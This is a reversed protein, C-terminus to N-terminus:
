NGEYPQSRFQDYRTHIREAEKRTLRTNVLTEYTWHNHESDPDVDPIYWEWDPVTEREVQFTDWPGVQYRGMSQGVKGWFMDTLTMWFANELAKATDIEDIYDYIAKAKETPTLDRYRLRGQVIRGNVKRVELQRAKNYLYMIRWMPLAEFLARQFDLSETAQGVLWEITRGVAFSKVM